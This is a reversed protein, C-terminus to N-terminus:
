PHCPRHMCPPRHVTPLPAAACTKLNGNNKTFGNLYFFVRIFAPDDGEQGHTRYGPEAHHHYGMAGINPNKTM